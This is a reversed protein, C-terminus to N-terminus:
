DLARYKVKDTPRRSKVASIFKESRLVEHLFMHCMKVPNLMVADFVKLRNLGKAFSKMLLTRKSFNSIILGHVIASKSQM